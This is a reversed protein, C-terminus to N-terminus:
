KSERPFKFVLAVVKPGKKRMTYSLRNDFYTKDNVEDVAPQIVKTRLDTFAKYKNDLCFARRIEEVPLILMGTDRFQRCLEFLRISYTSEMACVAQLDVKTYHGGITLGVLERRIDPHFRLRVYGQGKKRENLPYAVNAFWRTGLQETDNRFWLAGAERNNLEITARRMQSYADNGSKFVANWEKATIVFTFAEDDSTDRSYTIKSLGLLLLRKCYLPMSYAARILENSQGYHGLPEDLDDLQSDVQVANGKVLTLM